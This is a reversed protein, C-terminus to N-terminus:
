LRRFGLGGSRTRLISARCTQSAYGTATGREAALPSPEQRAAAARGRCRGGADRRPTAFCSLRKPCGSGPFRAHPGRRLHWLGSRGLTTSALASRGGLSDLGWVSPSWWMFDHAKRCLAFGRKPRELQLNLPTANRATPSRGDRGEAAGRWHQETPATAGGAREAASVRQALDDGLGRDRVRRRTILRSRATGWEHGLRGLILTRLWAPLAGRPPRLGAHNSANTTSRRRKPRRRSPKGNLLDLTRTGEDAESIGRVPVKRQRSGRASERAVPRGVQLRGAASTGLV